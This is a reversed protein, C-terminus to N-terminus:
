NRTSRRQLEANEDLLAKREELLDKIRKERNRVQQCKGERELRCDVSADSLLTKANGSLKDAMVELGGCLLTYAFAIRPM